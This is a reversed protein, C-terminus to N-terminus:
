DYRIVRGGAKRIVILALASVAILILVAAIAKPLDAAGINLFIAISMVETKMKTAGALIVTAGFEGMARAWTLVVTALLSSKALPLTVWFFAQWRNCGLTRAVKEYRSDISDFASKMLRLAFPSVVAFQALIIGPKEFVFNLGLREIARGLPTSFLILLSFGLAIPPLVLPLDLVADVIAKGSFEKRSLVYAAPVALVMCFVASITSTFLSLKIAFIIEESILATWITRLDTFFLLVGLLFLIFVLFFVLASTTAIEFTREPFSSGERSM